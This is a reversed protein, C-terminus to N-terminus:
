KDRWRTIRRPWRTEGISRAMNRLVGRAFAVADEPVGDANSFDVNPPSVQVNARATTTQPEAGADSKHTWLFTCDYTAASADGQVLVLSIRLGDLPPVADLSM